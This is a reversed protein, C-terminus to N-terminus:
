TERDALMRASYLRLAAGASVLLLPVLLVGSIQVLAVVRDILDPDGGGRGFAVTISDDSEVRWAMFFWGVAFVLGIVILVLSAVSVLQAEDRVLLRKVELEVEEADVEEDDGEDDLREVDIPELEDGTM